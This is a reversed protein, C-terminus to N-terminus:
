DTKINISCGKRMNEEAWLPQTNTYHFLKILEEETNASALPVIHDIHWEGYNEWTMGEKFQEEIHKKATIYNAGLINITNTKKNERIRKYAKHLRNRLNSKIKFLPSNMRKTKTYARRKHRNNELWNRDTEKKCSKCQSALGDKKSKNNHFDTSKKETKCKHCLKM